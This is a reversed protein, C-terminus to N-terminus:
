KKLERIRLYDDRATIAQELTAYRGLYKGRYQFTWRGTHFTIYKEKKTKKVFQLLDKIDSRVEPFSNNQKLTTYVATLMGIAMDYKKQLEELKEIVEIMSNTRDTTNTVRSDSWDGIM